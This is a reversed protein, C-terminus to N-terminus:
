TRPVPQGWNWRMGIGTPRNTAVNFTWGGPVAIQADNPWQFVLLIAQTVEDFFTVVITTGGPPPQSFLASIASIAFTVADYTVTIADRNADFKAIVSAAM